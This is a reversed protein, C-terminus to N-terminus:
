TFSVFHFISFYPLYYNICGTRSTAAPELIELKAVVIVIKEDALRCFRCFVPLAFKVREPAM